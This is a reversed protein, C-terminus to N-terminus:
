RRDTTGCPRSWSTRAWAPGTRSASRGPKKVLDAKPWDQYSGVKGGKAAVKGRGAPRDVERLRSSQGGPVATFLDETAPLRAGPEQM